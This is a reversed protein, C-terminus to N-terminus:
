SADMEDAPMEDAPGGSISLVLWPVVTGDKTESMILLM